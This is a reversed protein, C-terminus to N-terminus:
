LLSVEVKLKLKDIIEKIHAYKEKNGTKTIVYKGDVLKPAMETIGDDTDSILFHGKRERIGLKQIEDVGVEKIFAILLDAGTMEKTSLEKDKDFKILIGPTRKRIPKDIILLYPKNSKDQRVKLRKKKPDYKGQFWDVIQEWKMLIDKDKVITDM